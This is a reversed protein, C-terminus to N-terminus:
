TAAQKLIKCKMKLKLNVPANLSQWYAYYRKNILGPDNEWTTNALTVKQFYVLSTHKNYINIFINLFAKVCLTWMRIAYVQILM